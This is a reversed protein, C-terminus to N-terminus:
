RLETTVQIVNSISYEMNIYTHENKSILWMNKKCRTM